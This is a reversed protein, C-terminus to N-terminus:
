GVFASLKHYHSLVGHDELDQVLASYEEPKMNRTAGFILQRYEDASYLPRTQFQVHEFEFTKVISGDAATYTVTFTDPKITDAIVCRKFDFSSNVSITRFYKRPFIQRDMLADYESRLEEHEALLRSLARAKPKGSDIFQQLVEKEYDHFTVGDQVPRRKFQRKISEYSIGAGIRIRSQANRNNKLEQQLEKRRRHQHDYQQQLSSFSQFNTIKLEGTILGTMFDELQEVGMRAPDNPDTTKRVKMGMAAMKWTQPGYPQGDKIKVGELLYGRSKMVLGRNALFDAAVFRIGLQDVKEQVQDIVPGTEIPGHGELIVADTSIVFWRNRNIAEGICARTLSLMYAGLPICSISSLTEIDTPDDRLSALGQLTKGFSSNVLLKVVNFSDELRLRMLYGLHESLYSSELREFEHVSHIIYSELLGQTLAVYVEPWMIHGSGSSPFILTETKEGRFKRGEAKVPFIPEVAPKFIWSIYVGAIQFPGDKLLEEMREACASGTTMFSRLFSYDRGLCFLGTPYASKFDFHSCPGVTGVVNTETRGGYVFPLFGVIGPTPVLRNETKHLESQYEAELKSVLESVMEDSLKPASEPRNAIIYEAFEEFTEPYEDLKEAIRSRFFGYSTLREDGVSFVKERYGLAKKWEANPLRKPLGTKKSVPIEQGTAHYYYIAQFVAKFHAEGYGPIRTKMQGDVLPAFLRHYFLVSQGTVIADRASYRLFTKPDTKWLEDMQHIQGAVDLKPIGIQTGAASLSGRVLNMTDTFIAHIKSIKKAM